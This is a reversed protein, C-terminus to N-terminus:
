SHEGISALKMTLSSALLSTEGLTHPTCATLRFSTSRHMAALTLTLPEVPLASWAASQLASAKCCRCSFCQTVQGQVFAWHSPMSAPPLDRTDGSSRWSVVILMPLLGQNHMM